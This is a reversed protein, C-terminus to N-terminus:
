TAAGCVKLDHKAAANAPDLTLVTRLPGIAESCRGLKALSFGLNLQGQVNNPHSTLYARYAAIAAEPQGTNWLAWGEAFVADKYNPSVALLGRLVTLDDAFDGLQQAHLAAQYRVEPLIPRVVVEADSFALTYITRRPYAALLPAIATWDSTDAYIVDGRLGPDNLPFLLIRYAGLSNSIVLANHLGALDQRLSGQVLGHGLYGGYLPFQRPLYFTFNASMLVLLALGAAPGGITRGRLLRWVRGALAQTLEGAIVIGRATLIIYAPLSEFLYRPGFAIGNAYYFAYGALPVAAIGYLLLERSKLRMTALPLFFFSLTLYYPWGFLHILLTTYLNDVVFLGTAPTWPTSGGTGSGSGLGSSGITARGLIQVVGSLRWNYFVYFAYCALAPLCLALAICLLHRAPWPRRRAGGACILRAGYILGVPAAFLFATYERTLFAFGIGFSALLGWRAAGTAELLDMGSLFLLLSFLCVTHSMYSSALFLFFPSFGILAYSILGATRGYWRLALRAILYACAAGLVPNVVWPAGVLMGFAYALPAGPPYTAFWRGHSIELFPGPFFGALRPSPASVSFSGGRIIAAQFYYAVEDVIRPLRFYAFNSIGLLTVLIAGTAGVSVMPWVRDFSWCRPVSRIRGFWGPRRIHLAVRVAVAVACSVLLTCAALLVLLLGIGLLYSRTITWGALALYPRWDHPYYMSKGGLMVDRGNPDITLQVTKSGFFELSSAREPREFSGSLTFATPLTVASLADVSGNNLITRGAVDDHLTFQRWSSYSSCDRLWCLFRYYLTGTVSSFSSADYSYVGNSNTTGDVQFLRFNLDQYVEGVKLVDAPWPARLTQGDISLTAAAGSVRLTFPARAQETSPLSLVLFAITPTLIIWLRAWPSRLAQRM